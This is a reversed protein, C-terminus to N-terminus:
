KMSQQTGAFTEVAPASIVRYERHVIDVIARGIIRAKASSHLVTPVTFGEVDKFDQTFEFSKVFFSPSKALTGEMRRLSATRVDLYFRGKFLGPTKRRPKVQFVHLDQGDINQMGKYYFKYNQFDLATDEPNSKEVHDVESQLLRTIVNSKVFGDGTFHAKSFALTKPRATYTRELQYEGKQRTDPLVATVTTEDTYGALRQSQEENHKLFSQLAIEPALIPLPRDITFDPMASSRPEDALHVFQQAEASAAVALFLCGTIFLRKLM